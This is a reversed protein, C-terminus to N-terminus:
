LGRAYDALRRLAAPDSTDTAAARAAYLDEPLPRREVAEVERRSLRLLGGRVEVIVQDGSETVRGSITAGNRLLVEDAQAASALGLGIAFATSLRMAKMEAM